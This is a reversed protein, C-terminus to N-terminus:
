QGSDQANSIVGFEETMLPKTKDTRYREIGGALREGDYDGPAAPSVLDAPHAIMLGLNAQSACGLQRLALNSVTIGPAEKWEACDPLRVVDHLVNLHVEKSSAIDPGIDPKIHLENLLAILANLRKRSLSNDASQIEWGTAGQARARDIFDVLADYQQGDPLIEAPSSYIVNHTVRTSYVELKHRDPWRATDTRDDTVCGSLALILGSAIIFARKM